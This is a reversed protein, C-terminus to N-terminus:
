PFDVMLVELKGSLCQTGYNRRISELVVGHGLDVLDELCAVTGLAGVKPIEQKVVGFDVIGKDAWWLKALLPLKLRLAWFHDGHLSSHSLVPVNSSGCYDSALVEHRAL